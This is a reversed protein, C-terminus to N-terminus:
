LKNDTLSTSENECSVMFLSIVILTIYSYVCKM